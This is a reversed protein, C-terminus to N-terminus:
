YPHAQAKEAIAFLKVILWRIILSVAVYILFSYYYQWKLLQYFNAWVLAPEVAFSLLGAITISALIFSKWTNFHQYALSFVVPLILLNIATLVPFIPLLYIPYFWLTLEIGCEDIGMTVLTTLVAYLLIEPLRTKDLLKWWVVISLISLGLLFWWNFHFLDERLWKNLHVATLLKQIEMEIPTGTVALFM